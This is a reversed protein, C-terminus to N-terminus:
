SWDFGPKRSVIPVGSTQKNAVLDIETRPGLGPPPPQPTIQYQVTEASRSPRDPADMSMIRNGPIVFEVSLARPQGDVAETVSLNLKARHDENFFGALRSQLEIVRLLFQGTVIDGEVANAYHTAALEDLRAMQLKWLQTAPEITLEAMARKIDLEIQGHSVKLHKAIDRYSYSQIRLQLAERRRLAAKISRPSTKSNFPRPVKGRKKKQPNSTVSQPSQSSTQAPENEGGVIM